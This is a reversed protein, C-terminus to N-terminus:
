NDAALAFESQHWSYRVKALVRIWKPVLVIQLACHLRFMISNLRILEQGSSVAVMAGRLQINSVESICETPQGAVMLNSFTCREEDAYTDDDRNKNM